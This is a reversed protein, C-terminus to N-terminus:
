VGVVGGEMELDVQVICLARRRYLLAWILRRKSRMMKRVLVMLAVRRGITAVLCVVVGCM